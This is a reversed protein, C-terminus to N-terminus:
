AAAWNELALGPIGAFDAINNTVLAAGASLAHAAIMHDIDRSKQRGVADIISGYAEAALVGFSVVQVGRLMLNHRQRRSSADPMRSDLGRQLEALTLASMLISGENAEFKQRVAEAGERAYIFINTDIM